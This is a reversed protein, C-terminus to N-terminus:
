GGEGGGGPIAWLRQPQLHHPGPCRPLRPGESGQARGRPADNPKSKEQRLEVGRGKATIGAIEDPEKHM